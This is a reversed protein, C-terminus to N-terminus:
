LWSITAFAAGAVLALGVAGELLWASDSSKYRGLTLVKLVTWGLGRIGDQIIGDAIAELM